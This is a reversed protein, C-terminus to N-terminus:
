IQGRDSEEPKIKVARLGERLIRIGEEPQRSEIAKIIDIHDKNIRETSNDM